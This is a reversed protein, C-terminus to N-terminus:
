YLRIINKKAKRANYIMLRDKSGREGNGLSRSSRYHSYALWGLLWNVFCISVDMDFFGRINRENYNNKSNSADRSHRNRFNFPMEM